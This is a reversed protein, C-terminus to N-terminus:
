KGEEMIRVAKEAARRPSEAVVLATNRLVKTDEGNVIITLYAGRVHPDVLVWYGNPDADSDIHFQHRWYDGITDTLGM